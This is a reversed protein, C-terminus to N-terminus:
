HTPSATDRQRASEVLVAAAVAAHPPRRPEEGVESVEASSFPDFDPGIVAASACSGAPEASVNWEAGVVDRVSSPLGLDDLDGSVSWRGDEGM